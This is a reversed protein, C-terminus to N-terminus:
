SKCYKIIVDDVYVEIEKHIIDHFITTMVRIYTALMRSALHCWEKIIYVGLYLLLQRKADKKDMLIHHYGAYCDVFSRMEHKAYNDILNHINPFPFNDKPIAKNLDIYDVCIRIKGNKKAVSVFNALWNPYQTVEM